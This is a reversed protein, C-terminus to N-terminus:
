HRPPPISKPGVARDYAYVIGLFCRRKSILDTREWFNISLSKITKSLNVIDAGLVLSNTDINFPKFASPLTKITESSLLTCSEALIKVLTLTTGTLPK